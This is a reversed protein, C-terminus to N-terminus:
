LTDANRRAKQARAADVAKRLSQELVAELTRPLAFRRCMRPRKGSNGRGGAAVRARLEAEPRSTKRTM